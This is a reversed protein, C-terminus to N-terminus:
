YHLEDEGTGEGALGAPGGAREDCLSGVGGAGDEGERGLMRVRALIEGGLSELAPHVLDHQLPRALLLLLLLTTTCSNPRLRPRPLSYLLLLLLLFSQLFETRSQTSSPGLPLLPFATPTLPMLLLALLLLERHMCHPDLLRVIDRRADGNRGVPFWGHTHGSTLPHKRSSSPSMSSATQRRKIWECLRQLLNQILTCEESALYPSM